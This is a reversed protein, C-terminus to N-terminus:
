VPTFAFPYFALVVHNKGKQDSLRWRTGDHSELEFDPAQAGAELTTTKNATSTRGKQVAMTAFHTM